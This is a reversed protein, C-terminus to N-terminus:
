AEAIELSHRPVLGKEFIRQNAGSLQEVSECNPMAEVLNGEEEAGTVFVEMCKFGAALSVDLDEGKPLKACLAAIDALRNVKTRGKSGEALEKIADILEGITGSAKAATEETM